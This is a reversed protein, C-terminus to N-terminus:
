SSGANLYSHILHLEEVHVFQFLVYREIETSHLCRLLLMWINVPKLVSALVSLTPVLHDDGPLVISIVLVEVTSYGASGIDWYLDERM